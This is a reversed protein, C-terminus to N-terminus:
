NHDKTARIWTGVNEAMTQLSGLRHGHHGLTMKVATTLPPGSKQGWNGDTTALMQTKRDKTM